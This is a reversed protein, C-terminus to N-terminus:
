HRPTDNEKANRGQRQRWEHVGLSPPRGRDLLHFSIAHTARIPTSM